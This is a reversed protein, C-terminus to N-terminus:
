DKVRLPEFREVVPNYMEIPLYRDDEERAPQWRALPRQEPRPWFASTTPEEPSPIRYVRVILVVQRPPPTDPNREQFVRLRWHMYALLAAADGRVKGAIRERWADLHGEGVKDDRCSLTLDLNSEYRRLRFRGLRVFSRIDDPENDSLLLRPPLSATYSRPSVGCFVVVGAPDRAALPAILAVVDREPVPDTDWRFQVAVFTTVRYVTPAFLSWDQPQGTVQSWRNTLGTIVEMADYLHGEEHTWGPAVRAAATRGAQLLREEFADSPEAPPRDKLYPRAKEAMGLFNAALLFLLQGVVFLGLIVQATTPSRSPATNM